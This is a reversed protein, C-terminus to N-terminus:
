LDLKHFIRNYHSEYYIVAYNHIIANFTFSMRICILDTYKGNYAIHVTHLTLLYVFCCDYNCKHIMMERYFLKLIVGGVLLQAASLSLGSLINM